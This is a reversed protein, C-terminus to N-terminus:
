WSYELTAVLFSNADFNEGNIFFPRTLVTPNIILKGKFGSNKYCIGVYYFLMANKKMNESTGLSLEKNKEAFKENNKDEEDEHVELEPNQNTGQLASFGLDLFWHQFLKLNIFGSIQIQLNNNEDDDFFGAHKTIASKIVSAFYAIEMSKTAKTTVGTKIDWFSFSTSYKKMYIPLNPVLSFGWSTSWKSYKTIQYSERLYFSMQKNNKYNKTSDWYKLWLYEFFGGIDFQHKKTKITISPTAQIRYLVNNSSFVEKSNVFFYATNLGVYIYKSLKYSLGTGILSDFSSTKQYIIGSPTYEFLEKEINFYFQIALKKFPYIIGGRKGNLDLYFLKKDSLSMTSPLAISNERKSKLTLVPLNYVLFTTENLIYPNQLNSFYETAFLFHLSQFLVLIIIIKKM